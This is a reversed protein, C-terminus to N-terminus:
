RWPSPPGSAWDSFSDTDNGHIRYVSNGTQASPLTASGWSGPAPYETSGGKIYVVDVPTGDQKIFLVTEGNNNLAFTFGSYDPQLGFLNFFGDHSQAIVVYSKAGICSGAPFVFPTSGPSGDMIQM